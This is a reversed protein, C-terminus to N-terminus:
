KQLKTKKRQSTAYVHQIKKLGNFIIARQAHQAIVKLGNFYIQNKRTSKKVSFNSPM